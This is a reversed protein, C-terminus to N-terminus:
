VLGDGALREFHENRWVTVCPYMLRVDVRADTVFGQFDRQIKFIGFCNVGDTPCLERDFLTRDFCELCCDNTGFVACLDPEVESKWNDLTTRLVEHLLSGLGEDPTRISTGVVLSLDIDSDEHAGGALGRSGHLIVRAVSAHVALDAERLLAVTDPLLAAFRRDFETIRIM